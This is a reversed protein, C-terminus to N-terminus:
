ILIGNLIPYKELKTHGNCIAEVLAQYLLHFPVPMVLHLLVLHQFSYDETTLDKKAIDECKFLRQFDEFTADAVSVGCKDKMSSYWEPNTNKGTNFAWEIHGQCTSPIGSAARSYSAKLLIFIFLNSICTRLSKMTTRQSGM